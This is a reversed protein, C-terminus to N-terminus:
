GRECYAKLGEELLMRWGAEMEAVAGDGIRGMIGDSLQLVTQEGCEELALRIMSVNPGGWQPMLFGVTNLVKGPVVNVVTFWLTEAGAANYEYGRGGAKPEIVFGVPDEVTYFDARWWGTTEEVLAAWVRERPANIVIELEVNTARCPEFATEPMATEGQETNEITGKLRILREAWHAEYPRVWREYLRQIPVANLHNWRERGQKRSLVLGAEELVRLHKMVAFRSSPFAEALEGTTRPATRLLDLIERRTLDSLAKWVIELDDHSAPM